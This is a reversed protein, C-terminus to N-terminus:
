WLGLAGERRGGRKKTRVQDSTHLGRDIAVRQAHARHVTRGLHDDVTSLPARGVGGRALWKDRAARERCLTLFREAYVDPGSQVKPKSVAREFVGPTSERLAEPLPQGVRSWLLRLITESYGDGSGVEGRARLVARARELAPRLIRPINAKLNCAAILEPIDSPVTRWRVRAERSISHEIGEDALAASLQYVVLSTLAISRGSKKSAIQWAELEPAFAVPVNFTMREESHIRDDDAEDLDLLQVTARARSTLGYDGRYAELCMMVPYPLDVCYTPNESTLDRQELARMPELVYRHAVPFLHDLELEAAYGIAQLRRLIRSAVLYRVSYYRGDAYTEVQAARLRHIYRVPVGTSLIAGKRNIRPAM